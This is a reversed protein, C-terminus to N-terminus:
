SDRPESIHILSLPRKKVQRMLYAALARRGDAALVGAEVAIGAAELMSFGRGSVREDPDRVSVVVRAVGAEILAEACPQTRGHHSCPELTVYATAGRAGGGAETLAIREAHPRGGVDTVGAALVIGDKVLICGVSPNTATRGLNRLSLRIAAAMFRQDEAADAM